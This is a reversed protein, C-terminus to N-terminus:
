ASLSGAIDHAADDLGADSDFWRIRTDSLRFWSYQSRAFRHTGFKILEVAADLDLEGRVHRALDGYGLGSMSPLEPGYGRELLGSVEGVWGREIMSDVRDDIRRYLEGRELTLGILRADFPPSTKDPTDKGPPTGGVAAIELARVM